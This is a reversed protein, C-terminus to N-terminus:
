FFKFYFIDKLQERDADYLNPLNQFVLKIWNTEATNLDLVRTAGFSPEQFCLFKICCLPRKM